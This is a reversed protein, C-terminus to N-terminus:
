SAEWLRAPALELVNGAPDRFYLSTAGNPWVHECTIKIGRRELRERWADLDEETIQFCCHGRGKTGHPPLTSPASSAEANFILLMGTPLKFFVHRGEAKAYTTLGLVDRYFAAAAALDDAYLCTELVNTITPM